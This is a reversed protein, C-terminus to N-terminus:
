DYWVACFCLVGVVLGCVVFLFGAVLVQLESGDLLWYCLVVAFRFLYCKGTYFLWRFDILFGVVIAVCWVWLTACEWVLLVCVLFGGSVLLWLCGVVLWVCVM